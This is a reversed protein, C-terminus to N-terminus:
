LKPQWEDAEEDATSIESVGLPWHIGLTRDNWLIRRSHEHSTKGLLLYSIVTDKCLTQYGHAFGAPIFLASPKASDFEFSRWKGFDASEPNIDAVVDFSSGSSCWVVKAQEFPFTQYHLGRVTGSLINSAQSISADSLDIGKDKLYELNFINTFAGRSDLHPNLKFETVDDLM